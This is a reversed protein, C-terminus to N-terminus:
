PPIGNSPPACSAPPCDARRLLELTEDELVGRKWFLQGPFLAETVYGEPPAPRGFKHGLLLYDPRESAVFDLTERTGSRTSWWWYAPGRGGDHNALISHPFYAQVGWAHFKVAFLRTRDVCHARLYAAAAPVGSYPRRADHRLAGVAWRAHVALVVLATGVLVRQLAPDPAPRRGEDFSVWLAVLWALVLAGEHWPSSYVVGFLLLLALTPLLYVALVGRHWFWGASVAVVALTALSTGTMAADLRVFARAALVEPELVRSAAGSSLDPPPALQLALLVALGLLAASPGALTRVVRARRAEPRRLAELVLAAWLGGAMMVGLTSSLSLLALVGALPWAGRTGRRWLRAAAFALVPLLCYSRAVVAYQYALYYGFPALVRVALPVPARRLWLAVGGLAAAFGLWQMSQPPLGLRAAVWLLAHWLGPTGEYRLRHLQLEWFGSDRALLWAQLEDFWPEHKWAVYAVPVAWAVLAPAWLARAAERAPAVDRVEAAVGQASM